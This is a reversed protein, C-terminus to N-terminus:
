REAAKACKAPHFTSCRTQAHHEPGSVNEDTKALRQGNEGLSACSIRAAQRVRSADLNSSKMCDNWLLEVVRYLSKLAEKDIRLDQRVDLNM